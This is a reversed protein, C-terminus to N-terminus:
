KPSDAATISIILFWTHKRKRMNLPQSEDFQKLGSENTIQLLIIKKACEMHM